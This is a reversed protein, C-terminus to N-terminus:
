LSELGYTSMKSAKKVDFYLEHILPDYAFSAGDFQYSFLMITDLFSPSVLFDYLNEVHPYRQTTWINGSEWQILNGCVRNYKIKYESYRYQWGRVEALDVSDTWDGDAQYGFLPQMGLNDFEPMPWDAHAMLQHLRNMSTSEDYDVEPVASYVAMLIGHCPATYKIPKGSDGYGYGKGGVQGLANSDSAATAIVDGINIVNTTGGLSVCEGTVGQPLDVGFHALQQRDIHKGARRTVELLKQVAFSTRISTPSLAAQIAAAGALKAANDTGTVTKWTLVPAVATPDVGDVTASPTANASLSVSLDQNHTTFDTGVLWQNFMEPLSVTSGGWASTSYQGFLPSVFINTFFDKKYPRYRLTFIENIVADSDIEESSYYQDLNYASNVNAERDPLRFYDFYIKQYACAFIPCIGMVYADLMQTYPIGLLNMLRYQTNTFDTFYADSRPTTNLSNLYTNFALPTIYPLYQGGAQSDFLSSRFDDIQYFWDEFISYIQHMPVFFWDIHEEIHCMAAASLTGTRTKLISKCSVKDGPQLLDYYVPLIEGVTSSFKLLHSMDFGSYGVRAKYTPNSLLNPM